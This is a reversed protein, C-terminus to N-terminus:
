VAINAASTVFERLIIITSRFYWQTFSSSSDVGASHFCRVRYYYDGEVKLRKVQLCEIQIKMLNRGLM